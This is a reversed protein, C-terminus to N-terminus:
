KGTPWPSLGKVGDLPILLSLVSDNTSVCGQDSSHECFFEGPKLSFAITSVPWGLTTRDQPRKATTQASLVEM